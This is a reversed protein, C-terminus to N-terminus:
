WKIVGNPLMDQWMDCSVNKYKDNEVFLGVAVKCLRFKGLKTDTVMFNVAKFRLGDDHDLITTIYRGEGQATAVSATIVFLATLIQKM